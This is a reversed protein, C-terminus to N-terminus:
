DTKLLSAAAGDDFSAEMALRSHCEQWCRHAEWRCNDSQSAWASSVGIVANEMGARRCSLPVSIMMLGSLIIFVRIEAMGQAGRRGPVM